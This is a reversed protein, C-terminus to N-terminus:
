YSTVLTKYNFTRVLIIDDEQAYVHENDKLLITYSKDHWYFRDGEILNDLSVENIHKERLAINLIIVDNNNLLRVFEEKLLVDNTIKNSIMYRIDFVITDDNIM